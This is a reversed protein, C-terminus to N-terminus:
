SLCVQAMKQMRQKDEQADFEKGKLGAIATAKAAESATLQARLVDKQETLRDRHAMLSQSTTKQRSLEASATDFKAAVCLVARSM